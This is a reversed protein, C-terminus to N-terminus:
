ECIAELRLKIWACIKGWLGISQTDSELGYLYPELLQEVMCPKVSGTHPIKTAAM